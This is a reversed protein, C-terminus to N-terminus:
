DTEGTNYNLTSGPPARRPKGGLFKLLDDVNSSTYNFVDNNPDIYDENWATGSAMHLVDRLTSDAYSSDRLLPLYDTVKDNVSRIYGDKIAAGMLMSTISKAMSFSVWLSDETNGLGYHELAIEGNKIILLGGVHAERMFDAVSYSQADVEYRFKSFNRENVPLPYTHEGAHITRKPSFSAVNRYPISQCDTATCDPITGGAIKTADLAPDVWM